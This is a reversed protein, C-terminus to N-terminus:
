MGVDNIIRQPSKLLLEPFREGAPALGVRVQMALDVLEL